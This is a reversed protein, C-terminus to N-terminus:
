GKNNPYFKRVSLDDRIGDKLCYGYAERKEETLEIREVMFTYGEHSYRYRIDIVTM